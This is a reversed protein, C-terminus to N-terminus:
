PLGVPPATTFFGIFEKRHHNTMMSRDTTIVVDFSV